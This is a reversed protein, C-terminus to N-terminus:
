ESSSFFGTATVVGNEDCGVCKLVTGDSLKVDDPMTEDPSKQFFATVTKGCIEVVMTVDNPITSGDSVRRRTGDLNYFDSERWQRAEYEIQIRIQKM